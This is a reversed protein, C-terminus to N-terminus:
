RTAVSMGLGKKPRVAAVIRDDDLGNLCAGASPITSSMTGHDKEDRADTFAFRVHHGAAEIQDHFRIQQDIPTTDDNPDGLMFIRRKPDRHIGDIHASPDYIAKAIQEKTSEVGRGKLSEQRLAAMEYAGSGLVLCAIDTRGQTLLSAAITSGRSQGALAITRLGLRQKLIDVAANMVMTENPKGRDAHNGSSGNLGVRSVYVYRVKFKAAWRDLMRRKGALRPGQKAPDNYDSTGADGDFFLVGRKVNELGPTVYYAICESGLKYKVFIRDPESECLSQSKSEAVLVPSFRPAPQAASAPVALAGGAAVLLLATLSRPM